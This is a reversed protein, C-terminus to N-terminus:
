PKWSNTCCNIYCSTWSTVLSCLFLSFWISHFRLSHFPISITVLLVPFLISYFLHPPSPWLLLLFTTYAWLPSPWTCSAFFVMGSIKTSCTSWALWDHSKPWMLDRTDHRTVKLITCLYFRFSLAFYFSITKSNIVPSVDYCLLCRLELSMSQSFLSILLM